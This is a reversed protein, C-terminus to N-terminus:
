KRSGERCHFNHSFGSLLGMPFDDGKKFALPMGNEKQRKGDQATDTM